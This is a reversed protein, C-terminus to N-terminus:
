YDYYRTKLKVLFRVISFLINILGVFEVSRLNKWSNRLLMKKNLGQKELYLVPVWKLAIKLTIHSALSTNNQKQKMEDYNLINKDGMAGTIPKLHTPSKIRSIGLWDCLDDLTKQRQNILDDYCIMQSRNQLREYGESINIFGWRFDEYYQDIAHWSKNNFSNVYSHIIDNPNRILFIFKADPYTRALFDIIFFYRPTKDIVYESNENAIHEYVQLGFKRQLLNISTGKTILRDDLERVAKRLAHMSFGAKANIPESLTAMGLNFWMEPHTSVESSSALLSQLLTSGSRPLSVIFLLKKQL